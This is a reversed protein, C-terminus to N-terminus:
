RRQVWFYMGYPDYPLETKLNKLFKLGNGCHICWNVNRGITCLPERKEVNEGVCREQRQVTAMRVLMLHYNMTSKIQMERVTLSVSCRKMSRNAM